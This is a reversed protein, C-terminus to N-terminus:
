LNINFKLYTNIFMITKYTERSKHGVLPPQDNNTDEASSDRADGGSSSCVNSSEARASRQRSIRHWSCRPWRHKGTRPAPHPPQLQRDGLLRWGAAAAGCRCAGLLLFCCWCGGGVGCVASVFYVNIFCTSKFFVDLYLCTFCCPCQNLCLHRLGKKEFVLSNFRGQQNLILEHM